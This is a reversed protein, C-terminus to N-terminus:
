CAELGGSSQGLICYPMAVMSPKAAPSYEAQGEHMTGGGTHSTIAIFRSVPGLMQGRDAVPAPVAAEPFQKGEHRIAAARKARGAAHRRLAKVELHERVSLREKSSSRLSCTEFHNM